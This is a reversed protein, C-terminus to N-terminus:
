MYGLGMFARMQEILPMQVTIVPGQRLLAPLYGRYLALIGEARVLNYTVMLLSRPAGTNTQKGMTLTKLTDAPMIVTQAILGSIFSSVTHLLPGESAGRQKAVSKCTDYSALQSSSLLAARLVCAPLGRYLARIGMEKEERVVHGFSYFTRMLPSVHAFAHPEAQLRVRVLDVPTFLAGGITGTALGSAARVTFSDASQGTTRECWRKAEPYAGIRFGTYTFGRLQTAGLGPLCINSISTEKMLDAMPRGTIQARVKLVELGNFMSDAMSCGAGAALIEKAVEWMHAQLELRSPNLPTLVGNTLACM